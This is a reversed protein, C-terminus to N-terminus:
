SCRSLALVSTQYFREGAVTLDTQRQWGMGGSNGGHNTEDMFSVRIRVGCGGATECM